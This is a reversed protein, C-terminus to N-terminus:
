ETYFFTIKWAKINECGGWRQQFPLKPHQCRKIIQRDGRGAGGMHRYRKTDIKISSENKAVRQDLAQEAAESM